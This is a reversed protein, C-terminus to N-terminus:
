GLDANFKSTPDEGGKEVAAKLGGWSALIDLQEVLLLDPEDPLLEELYSTATWGYEGNEDPEADEVVIGDMVRRYDYHEEGITGPFIDVYTDSYGDVRQQQYLGRITPEAMLYRQMSLPAHQLQGIDILEKIEDLQWLSRVARGVARIARMANSGELHSYMDRATDMFRAGADTLAQSVFGVQNEIFRMTGEHPRGYMLSKFM